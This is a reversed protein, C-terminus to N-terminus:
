RGEKLIQKVVQKFDRVQGLGFWLLFAVLPILITGNIGLFVIKAILNCLLNLM